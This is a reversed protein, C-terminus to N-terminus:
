HRRQSEPRPQPRNGNDLRYANGPTPPPVAQRKKRKGISLIQAKAHFGSVTRRSVRQLCAVEERIELPATGEWARASPATLSPRGGFFADFRGCDITKPCPNRTKQSRTDLASHVGCETPSPHLTAVASTRLALKSGSQTTESRRATTRTSFSFASTTWSCSM